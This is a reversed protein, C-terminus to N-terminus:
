GTRFSVSTLAHVSAIHDGSGLHSPRGQPLCSLDRLRTRTDTSLRRAAAECARVRGHSVSHGTRIGAAAEVSRGLSSSSSALFNAGLRHSRSSSHPFTIKADLTPRQSQSDYSPAVIKWLIVLEGFFQDATHSLDSRLAQGSHVLTTTEDCRQASAHISECESTAILTTAFMRAEADRSPDKESSDRPSHECDIV